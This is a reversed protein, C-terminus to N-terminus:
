SKPTPESPLECTKCRFKSGDCSGRNDPEPDIGAMRNLRRFLETGSDYISCVARLTASQHCHDRCVVLVIRFIRVRRGELRQFGRPRHRVTRCSGFRQLLCSQQPM